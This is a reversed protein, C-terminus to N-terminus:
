KRDLMQEKNTELLKIQKFMITQNGFGKFQHSKILFLCKKKLVCYATELNKKFFKNQSIKRVQEPKTISCSSAKTISFLVDKFKPCTYIEVM